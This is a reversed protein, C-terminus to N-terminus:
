SPPKPASKETLIRTIQELHIMDHWCILFLQDNLSFPPYQPHRGAREWATDDSITGLYALYEDRVQAWEELTAQPDRENYRGKIM